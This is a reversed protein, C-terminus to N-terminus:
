RFWSPQNVKKGWCSYIRSKGVYVTKLAMKFLDRPTYEAYPILLTITLFTVHNTRKFIIGKTLRGIFLVHQYMYLVTYTLSDQINLMKWRIILKRKSLWHLWLSLIERLECYETHTNDQKTIIQEFVTNNTRFTSTTNMRGWITDDNRMTKEVLTNTQIISWYFKICTTIALPPDLPRLRRAGGRAFIKSSIYLRSLKLIPFLDKFNITFNQHSAGPAGLDQIWRQYLCVVNANIGVGRIEDLALQLTKLFTGALKWGFRNVIYM